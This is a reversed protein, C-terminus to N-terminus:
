KRRVRGEDITDEKQRLDMIIRRVRRTRTM